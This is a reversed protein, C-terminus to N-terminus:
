QAELLQLMYYLWILKVWKMNIRPVYFNEFGNGKIIPVSAPKSAHM